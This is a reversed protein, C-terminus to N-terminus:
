DNKSLENIITLSNKFWPDNEVLNYYKDDDYNLHPIERTNSFIKKTRNYNWLYFRALNKSNYNVKLEKVAVLVAAAYVNFEIMGNACDTKNSDKEFQAIELSTIAANTYSVWEDYLYVPTDNFFRQQQLLYTKFRFNKLNDPIYRSVLELTIPPEKLIIALNNGVYLGNNGQYVIRLHANIGHTTEHSWTNINEKHQYRKQYKEPLHQELDQLFTGLREDYPFDKQKPFIVWCTAMPIQASILLPSFLLVIYNKM